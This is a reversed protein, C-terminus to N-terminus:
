KQADLREIAREHKEGERELENYYGRLDALNHLLAALLQTDTAEQIRRTLVNMARYVASALLFLREHEKEHAAIQRRREEALLQTPTLRATTM